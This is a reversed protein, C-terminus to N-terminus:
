PRSLSLCVEQKARQWVRLVHERLAAVQGGNTYEVIFAMDEDDLQRPEDTVPYHPRNANGAPETTVSMEATPSVFTTRGFLELFDCNSGLAFGAFYVTNQAQSSHLYGLLFIVSIAVSYGCRYM